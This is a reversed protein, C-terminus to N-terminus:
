GAIFEEVHKMFVDLQDHHSWHGARAINALRADKFHAIRGDAVPDSAWSEMGRVLLVPCTICSWIRRQDEMPLGAPGGLRVSNDFKWSYTGDENQAAGHVTLHRAQEASLHTNEERMRAVAEELTAYKRAVRGAAERRSLIASRVREEVPTEQWRALMQPSPGLGEIAVVKKVTDPFLGTYLLAISGGLSHAIITVPAMKKQHVLQAIDYVYNMENYSGGTAWESDGHGRLDPAIIHFRDALREAVWDWNRCHDRGGHIMLLNPAGENGWDVYHLRLRQSYYLHSTPGPM